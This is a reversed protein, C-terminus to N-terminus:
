NKETNCDSKFPGNYFNTIMNRTDIGILHGGYDPWVVGHGSSAISQQSNLGNIDQNLRNSLVRNGDSDKGFYQGANQVVEANVSLENPMPFRFASLDTSKNRLELGVKLELDRATDLVNINSSQGLNPTTNYPLTYISPLNNLHSPIPRDYVNSINQVQANGIPTFSLNPDNTGDITDLSNVYYKLPATSLDLQQQYASCDTHIGTWQNFIRNGNILNNSNCGFNKNYDPSYELSVM